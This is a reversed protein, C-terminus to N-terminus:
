SSFYSGGNAHVNAGTMYGNQALLVAIEAIEEPVGFRGIPVRDPTVQTLVRTMDSEVLGPSIANVTIGDKVLHSAYGRMLGLMGAKSAAYHPGIVGGISAAVSSLFIIRGWKAQRMAPVVAMTVMYASRLNVRIAEDFDSLTLTDLTRAEALGANNVLISVAGLQTTISDVLTAVEGPISVDARVAIAHGGAATIRGVVEDAAAAQMRYNVAVKAGAAGLAISIARGIGRSGGTVLAVKGNLTMLM